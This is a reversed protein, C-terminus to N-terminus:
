TVIGCGRTMFAAEDATWRVPMCPDQPNWGKNQAIGTRYANSIGREPELVLLGLDERMGLDPTPQICERTRDRIGDGLRMHVAATTVSIRWETNWNLIPIHSGTRRLRILLEEASNYKRLKIIMLGTDKGAHMNSGRFKLGV